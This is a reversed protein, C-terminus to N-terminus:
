FNSSQAEKTVANSKMNRKLYLIYLFALVAFGIQLLINTIGLRGQNHLAVVGVVASQTYLGLAFSIGKEKLGDGSSLIRVLIYLAIFLVVFFTSTTISPFFDFLAIPFLGAIIGLVYIFLSAKHYPEPDYLTRHHLSGTVLSLVMVMFFVLVEAQGSNLFNTIGFIILGVALLMTLASPLFNEKKYQPFLYDFILIPFLVSAFAHWLSIVIFWAIQVGFFLAVGEFEQIPLVEATFTQALLGENYIAYAMGLFIIGKISVNNRVALERICFVPLGYGLIAIYLFSVPDFLYFLSTSGSIIEVLFVPLLFITLLALVKKM